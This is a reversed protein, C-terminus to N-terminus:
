RGVGWGGVWRYSFSCHIINVFVISAGFLLFCIHACSFSESSLTVSLKCDQPVQYVTFPSLVRPKLPFLAEFDKQKGM